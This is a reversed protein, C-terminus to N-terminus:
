HQLGQWGGEAYARFAEKFGPSAEVKGDRWLAPHRDSEVNLPAIEQEAFRANEELVADILEENFEEFGPLALVGELDALEKLIFRIDQTPARYTMPDGFIQDAHRA